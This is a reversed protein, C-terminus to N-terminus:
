KLACTVVSAARLRHFCGASENCTLYNNILPAAKFKSLDASINVHDKLQECVVFREWANQPQDNFVGHSFEVVQECDSDPQLFEWHIESSNMLYLLSDPDNTQWGDPSLRRVDLLSHIGTHIPSLHSFYKALKDAHRGIMFLHSGRKIGESECLSHAECYTLKKPYSIMCEGDGVDVFEPPCAYMLTITTISLCALLLHM